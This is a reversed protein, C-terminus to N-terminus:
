ESGNGGKGWVGRRRDWYASSVLLSLTMIARMWCAHKAAHSSRVLAASCLRLPAPSPSASFYRSVSVLCHADKSVPARASARVHEEPHPLDEITPLFARM